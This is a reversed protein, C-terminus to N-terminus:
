KGKVWTCYGHSSYTIPGHCKRYGTGDCGNDTIMACSDDESCSWQALKFTSYENGYLAWCTKDLM